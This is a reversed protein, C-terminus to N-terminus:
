FWKEPVTITDNARVTDNLGVKKIEVKQGNVVRTIKIRKTEGRETVGGAMSLLQLVTLSSTLRYAGPNRVQGLIFVSEARAVFITDGDQIAVNHDLSGSALKDLSVRVVDNTDAQEPRIPGSKALRQQPRVILVESGADPTTYGARAIAQLLTEHGSLYFTGPQRVEGIVFFQQSRFTDISVTVQPNRLVSKALATTLATEVERATLGAAKITGVHPFTFSGDAGVTFKGTLEPQNFVAVQLVDQPGVVYPAVQAVGSVAFSCVMMIGLGLAGAFFRRAPRCGTPLAAWNTAVKTHM